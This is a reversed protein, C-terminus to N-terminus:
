ITLDTTHATFEHVGCENVKGDRFYKIRVSDDLIIGFKILLDITVLCENYDPLYHGSMFFIEKICGEEVWILGAGKVPMGWSLSTHRIGEKNDAILFKDEKTIVFLAGKSNRHYDNILLFSDGFKKYLKGNIITCLSEEVLKKETFYDVSPISSVYAFKEELWLFFPPKQLPMSQWQYYHIGLERHCPDIAEVFFRGYYLSNVHNYYVGTKLMILASEKICEGSVLNQMSEPDDTYENYFFSIWKLYNLKKVAISQIHKYFAGSMSEDHNAKELLETLVMLKKIREDLDLLNNKNLKHYMGIQENIEPQVQLQFHALQEIPPIPLDVWSVNKEFNMWKAPFSKSFQPGKFLIM